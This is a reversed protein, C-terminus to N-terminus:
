EGKNVKDVVQKVIQALENGTVLLRDKLKDNITDNLKVISDSITGISKEVHEFKTKLETFEIPSISKEELVGIKSILINIKADSDKVDSKIDEHTKKYEKDKDVLDKEARGIRWKILVAGGITGSILSAAISSIEDMKRTGM